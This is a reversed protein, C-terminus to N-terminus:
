NKSSGGKYPCLASRGVPIAPNSGAVFPERAKVTATLIKQLIGKKTARGSQAVDRRVDQM